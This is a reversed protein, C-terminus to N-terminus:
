SSSYASYEPVTRLAMGSAMNVVRGAGREVMGPLVARLLLAVGRVNVEFVRWWEDPDAEWLPVEAPDTVGASNVLLDIRGFRREVEAVAADVSAADTVDVAATLVDAGTPDCARAASALRDAARAFLAIKAGAGALTTAIGHGVGRSGGTVLAVQGDLPAMLGRARSRRNALRGRRDGRRPDPQGGRGDDHPGARAAETQVGAFAQGRRGARRHLRRVAAGVGTVPGRRRSPGGRGRGRAGLRGRHPRRRRAGAPLRLDGAGDSDGGRRRAPGGPRAGGRLQPRAPRVGRG